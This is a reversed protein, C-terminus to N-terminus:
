DEKILGRKFRNRTFKKISVRENTRLSPHLHLHLESDVIRKDKRQPENIAYLNDGNDERRMKRIDLKLAKM